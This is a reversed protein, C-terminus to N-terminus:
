MWYDYIQIDGLVFWVRFGPYADDTQSVFLWNLNIKPNTLDFHDAQQFVVIYQSRFLHLDYEM